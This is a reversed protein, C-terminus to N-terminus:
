EAGCLVRLVQSCLEGVSCWLVGRLLLPRGETLYRSPTTADRAASPAQEERRIAHSIVDCLDREDALVAELMRTVGNYVRTV